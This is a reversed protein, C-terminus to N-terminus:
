KALGGGAPQGSRVRGKLDVARGQISGNEAVMVSQWSFEYSGIAGAYRGTGGLISGVIRNAAETGEGKLESFVQNGREDTWVGRGVLGTESDVLAIVEALFGVGPRGQGTLLMTGRLDLISGKREAGLPIITRRTGAANWTGEFERWEGAAAAPNQPEASPGCAVLALALTVVFAPGLARNLLRLPFPKMVWEVRKELSRERQAAAGCRSSTSIAGSKIFTQLPTQQLLVQRHAYTGRQLGKM